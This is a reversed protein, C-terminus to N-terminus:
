DAKLSITETFTLANANHNFAIDELKLNAINSFYHNYYKNAQEASQRELYFRSGYQTGKTTIELTGNLTGNPTIAYQAVSTQSNNKTQYIPTRKLKAEKENIALVIRDDNSSGIYNFPITQSTCELWYLDNDTPVALIVHNGQMSVFDESINRKASSNYIISYYSPIDVAELLAKTYSTLAKCDGYGLRDVDKANMPKWGGIGLQISVYRTKNQVYKYIKEAKKRTDSENEVLKRM